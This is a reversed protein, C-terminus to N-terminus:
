RHTAFEGHLRERTKEVYEKAEELTSFQMHKRYGDLTVRAVYRPKGGAGDRVTVGKVGTTNDSRTRNMSNQQHTCHRLNSWRNDYTDRNIHDVFVPWAGTMYFYAARHAAVSRGPLRLARYGYSNVWDSREGIVSTNDYPVVSLRTFAGTEPDYSHFKKFEEITIEPDKPPRM